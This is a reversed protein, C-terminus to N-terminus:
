CVGKTKERLEMWEEQDSVHRFHDMKELVRLGRPHMYYNSTDAEPLFYIASCIVPLGVYKSLPIKKPLKVYPVGNVKLLRLIRKITVQRSKSVPPKGWRNVVAWVDWVDIGESGIRQLADRRLGDHEPLRKEMLEALTWTTLGQKYQRYQSFDHSLGRVMGDSGEWWEYVDRVYAPEQSTIFAAEDYTFTWQGYDYCGVLYKLLEEEDNSNPAISHRRESRADMVDQSWEGNLFSDLLRRTSTKREKKSKKKSM